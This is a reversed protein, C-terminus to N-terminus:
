PLAMCAANDDSVSGKLNLRFKTARTVGVLNKISSTLDAPCSIGGIGNM